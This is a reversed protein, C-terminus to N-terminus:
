AAVRWERAFSCSSPDRDSGTRRNPAPAETSGRGTERASERSRERKKKAADALTPAIREPNPPKGFGHAAADFGQEIEFGGRRVLFYARRSDLEDALEATKSLRGLSVLRRKLTRDFLIKSTARLNTSVSSVLAGARLRSTSASFPFARESTRKPRTVVSPQPEVEPLTRRHGLPRRACRLQRAYKAGAGRNCYEFFRNGSASYARGSTAAEAWPTAKNIHAAMTSDRIVMQGNPTPTTGGQDWWRGLYIKNSPASASATFSCNILLFGLGNGVSTSPALHM